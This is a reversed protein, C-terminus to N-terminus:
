EAEHSEADDTRGTTGAVYIEGALLELTGLTMASGSDDNRAVTVLAVPAGDIQVWRLPLNMSQAAETVSDLVQSLPMPLGGARARVFRIAVVNSESVYLEAEVSYVISMGGHELGFGVVVRGPEIAVRLRDVDDPLAGPHLRPLDVALWGNIQEATFLANWQGARRVDSALAAARSGLEDNAQRLSAQDTAIARSYFTPVHRSALYVGWLAVLVCAVVGLSILAVRRMKNRM